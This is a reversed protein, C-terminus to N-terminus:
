IVNANKTFQKHNKIILKTQCILKKIPCVKSQRYQAAMGVSFCNMTFILIQLSKTISTTAM